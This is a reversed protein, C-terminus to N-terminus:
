EENREVANRLQERVYEARTADREESEMTRGHAVQLHAAQVNLLLTNLSSEDLLPLIGLGSGLRLDGLSEFAERTTLLRAHHLTAWARWVRDELRARDRDQLAERARQECRIVEVVHVALDEVIEAERRGLTASNSIQFQAGLAGSGEGYFGRVTLDLRRLGHLVRDVDNTLVLGPLHVLLSARLGTGVNTPCATLYGLDADQAFEVRSELAEVMETARRLARDLNLGPEFVQLRVHDEENLMMGDGENEALVLSRGLVFQVLDMSILHRELLFRRELDELDEMHMVRATQLGAVEGLERLVKERLVCLEDAPTHHPFRQHALTRAFRVRSSLVIHRSPADGCLWPAGRRALDRLEPNL